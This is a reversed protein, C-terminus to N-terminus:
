KEHRQPFLWWSLNALLLESVTLETLSWARLLFKLLPYSRFTHDSGNKVTTFCPKDEITNEVPDTAMVTLSDCRNM